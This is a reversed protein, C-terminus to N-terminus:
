GALEAAKAKLDAASLTGTHVITGAADIVVFFEQTTVGFKKWVTGDDDALNPFGDIGNDTAFKRMADEGSGLGAVGIVAVKGSNDRQVSAVDDAKAKCKPCWAAWFWLIVPKGSLSAGDFAKGDITTATFKLADPTSAAGPSASTGPATTTSVPPSQAAPTEASGCGALASVALALVTLRRAVKAVM